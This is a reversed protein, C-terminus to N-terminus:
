STTTGTTGTTGGGKGGGFQGPYGPGLNQYGPVPPSASNALAMGKSLLSVVNDMSTSNLQNIANATISPMTQSLSALWQQNISSYGLIQQTFASLTSSALQSLANSAAETRALYGQIMGNWYYDTDPAQVGSATTDPM